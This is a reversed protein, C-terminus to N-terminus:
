LSLIEISISIKFYQQRPIMHIYAYPKTEKSVKKNVGVPAKWRCWSFPRNKHMTSSPQPCQKYIKSTLNNHPKDNQAWGCYGCLKPTSKLHFHHGFNVNSSFNSGLSGLFKFV